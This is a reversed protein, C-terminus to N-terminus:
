GIPATRAEADFALRAVPAIRAEFASLLATVAKVREEHGGTELVSVIIEAFTTRKQQHAETTSFIGEYAYEAFAAGLEEGYTEIARQLLAALQQERELRNRQMDEYRAMTVGGLTFSGKSQLFFNRKGCTLLINNFNNSSIYIFNTPL